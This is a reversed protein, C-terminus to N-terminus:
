VGKLAAECFPREFPRHHNPRESESDAARAASMIKEAAGHLARKSPIEALAPEALKRHPVGAFLQKLVGRQTTDYKGFLIQKKGDVYYPRETFNRIVALPTGLASAEEQLTGSDSIVLRAQALYCIFEPYNIPSSITLNNPAAGDLKTKLSASRRSVVLLFRCDPLEAAIFGVDSFLAQVEGDSAERRHCTIIFDFRREALVCKALSAELAYFISNAMIFIKDGKIGENVLHRADHHTPAINLSAMHDICIRFYNEPWPENYRTSRLGAEIHVLFCRAGIAAIAAGYATWTDGVVCVVEPRREALFSSAAAEVHRINSLIANSSPHELRHSPALSFLDLGWAAEEKNQSSIVIDVLAGIDSLAKALPAAKLSEPRTGLIFAIKV